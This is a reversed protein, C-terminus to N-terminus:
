LATQTKHIRPKNQFIGSTDWPCALFTAMHQIDRLDGIFMFNHIPMDRILLLYGQFIFGMKRLSLSRKDPVDKM